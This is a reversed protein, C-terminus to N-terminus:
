FDIIYGKGNNYLINNPQIDGHVYGNKHLTQISDILQHGLKFVEEEQFCVQRQNITQMLNKDIYQLVQFLHINNGM